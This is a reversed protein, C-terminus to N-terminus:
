DDRLSFSHRGGECAWGGDDSGKRELGFKRVWWSCRTAEGRWGVARRKEGTRRGTRRKVQQWLRGGEAEAPRDLMTFLFRIDDDEDLGVEVVEVVVM